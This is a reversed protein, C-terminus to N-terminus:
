FIIRFPSEMFFNKWLMVRTPIIKVM